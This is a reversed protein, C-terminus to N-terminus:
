GATIGVACGAPLTEPCERPNTSTMTVAVEVGSWPGEVRSGAFLANITWHVLRRQTASQAAGTRAPERPLRTSRTTAGPAHPHQVVRHGHKDRTAVAVALHDFEGQQRAGGRDRLRRGGPCPDRGQGGPSFWRLTPM